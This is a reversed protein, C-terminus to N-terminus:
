DGFFFAFLEVVSDLTNAIVSLGFFFLVKDNKWIQRIEEWLIEFIEKISM